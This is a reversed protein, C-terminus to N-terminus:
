EHLPVEGREPVPFGFVTEYVVVPVFVPETVTVDPLVDCVAFQELETETVEVGGGGVFPEHEAV